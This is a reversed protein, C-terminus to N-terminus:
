KLVCLIPNAEGNILCSFPVCIVKLSKSSNIKLVVLWVILLISTSRLVPFPNWFIEVFWLKVASKLLRPVFVIEKLIVKFSPVTKVFSDFNVKFCFACLM